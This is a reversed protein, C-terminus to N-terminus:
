NMVPETIDRCNPHLPNATIGVIYESLPFVLRDMNSCKECDCKDLHLFRYKTIGLEEYIRKRTISSVANAETRWLRRLIKEMSEGRGAVTKLVDVISDRRLFSVKLDNSLQITWRQKHNALRQLWTLGEDGWPTNLIETIDVNVGFFQSERSVIDILHNTFLKEFDGFGADFLEAITNNLFILRKTHNKSSVWKKVENYTVVGDKGYKQYFLRIEDELKSLTLHLAALLAVLEEDTLNDEKHKLEELEKETYM